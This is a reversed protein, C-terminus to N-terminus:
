ANREAFDEQHCSLNQCLINLQCVEAKLSDIADCLVHHEICAAKEALAPFGASGSAGKFTHTLRKIMDKDAKAVADNIESLMTPVQEVFLEAVARLDPDHALESVIRGAVVPSAATTTPSVAPPNTAPLYKQLAERLKQPNVPKTVYGDCGAERCKEEDGKMANATLAVIPTTIGKKHLIRTADYGNLIPMQMDMFILGFSRQSAMEVAEQGNNAIVAEVGMKKLLIKMLLQNAPNDEAVLIDVSFNKPIVEDSKQRCHEVSEYKDFLPQENVNVGTPITVSFVSGKNPESKLTIKGNLLEVLKKTIALGLGTGGFKRTTSNDAQVY